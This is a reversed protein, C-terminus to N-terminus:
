DNRYVYHYTGEGGPLKAEYAKERILQNIAAFFIREKVVVHFFLIRM